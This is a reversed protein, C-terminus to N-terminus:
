FINGKYGGNEKIPGMAEPTPSRIYLNHPDSLENYDRGEADEEVVESLDSQDAQDEEPSTDPDTYSIPRSRSRSKTTPAKWRKASGYDNKLNKLERVPPMNASHIHPIFASFAIILL